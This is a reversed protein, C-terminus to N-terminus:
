TWIVRAEEAVAQLASGDVTTSAEGLGVSPLAVFIELPGAPPLPFVWVAGWRGSSGGGSSAMGVFPETPIDDEDRPIGATRQTIAIRLPTRGGVRGDAFRVGIRPTRDNLPRM